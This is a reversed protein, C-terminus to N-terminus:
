VRLEDRVPVGDREPLCRLVHGPPATDRAGILVAEGEEALLLGLPRDRVAPQSFLDDGRGHRPRLSRRDGDLAVLVRPRPAGELTQRLQRRGEGVAPADGGAVARADVVAGGGEDDRRSLARRRYAQPRDRAHYAGADDAHPRVLHAEARDRSRALRQLARAERDLVHRDDLQVLREGALHDRRTDLEPDVPAVLAPEVRVAARDRDAM